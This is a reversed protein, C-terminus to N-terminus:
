IAGDAEATRLLKKVARGLENPSGGMMTGYNYVYVNREQAAGGGSVGAAAAAGGEASASGGGSASLQAGIAVTSAGLAIIGIGRGVRVPNYSAIGEAMVLAGYAIIAQGVAQIIEGLMKRANLSGDVAAQALANGFAQSAVVAIDFGISVQELAARLSQLSAEYASLKPLPVDNWAENQRDSLALSAEWREIADPDLVPFMLGGVERWGDSFIIENRTELSENMKDSLDIAEQWMDQWVSSGGAAAAGAGGGVSGPRKAGPAAPVDLLGVLEWPRAQGPPGLTGGGTASAPFLADIAAGVLRLNNLLSGIPTSGFLTSMIVGARQGGPTAESARMRVLVRDMRELGAATDNLGHSIGPLNGIVALLDANFKSFSSAFKGFDANARIAAEAFNKLAFVAGAITFAGLFAQAASRMNLMRAAFVNSTRTTSGSLDTLKKDFGAIANTSERVGTVVGRSDITLEALVLTEAM